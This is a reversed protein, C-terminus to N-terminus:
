ESYPIFTLILDGASFLRLYGADPIYEVPFPVFPLAGYQASAAKVDVVTVGEVKQLVDVLNQLLFVGNFPLNKLYNRIADGVPDSVTGDVRGGTASIVLPNFYIDITLKLSDAVATTILLKVGADKLRQM